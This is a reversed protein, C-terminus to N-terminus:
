LCVFIRQADKTKSKIGKCQGYLVDKININVLPTTEDSEFFGYILFLQPPSSDLLDFSILSRERVNKFQLDSFIQQMDKQRLRDKLNFRLSLLMSLHMYKNSLSIKIPMKLNQFM